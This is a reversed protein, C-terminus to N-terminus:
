KNLRTVGASVVYKMVDTSNIDLPTISDRPVLYINGSFNYSHPCYVTVTDELGMASLDNQTVFGIRKFHVGGPEGFDAIVPQDFRKKDGVFAETLERLSTYIIKVLPVRGMFRDFYSVLPKVFAQSFIFGILAVGIIVTIIGLGPIDRGLWDFLLENFLTNFWQVAAIIIYLTAVLPFVFLLGRLFYNFFQRM